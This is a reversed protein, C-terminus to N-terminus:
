SNSCQSNTVFIGKAFHKHRRLKPNPQQSKIAITKDKSKKNVKAHGMPKVDWQVFNHVKSSIVMTTPIASGPVTEM